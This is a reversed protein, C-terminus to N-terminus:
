RKDTIKVIRDGIIQVIFVIILILFTAIYTMTPNNRAIGYLYALHGLGGAGIAGAMATYGILTVGMITMNSFLAPKAEPLLVKKIIQWNSAGMAKSAEITGKDVENFAVMCMRAYFPASSIILAPLAAKAGLISGVLVKTLPLLIFLLIIFPISRLINVIFNLTQSILRNPYLGEEQTIYLLIGLLLGLIIAVILAIFSMFLTDGLAVIVSDWDIQNWM